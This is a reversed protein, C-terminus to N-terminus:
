EGKLFLLSDPFPENPTAVQDAWARAYGFTFTNVLTPSFIHTEQASLTYLGNGQRQIMVPNDQPSDRHGRDATFSTSLSDQGSLNYDFRALGFDENVPRSTNSFNFASGTPLGNQLLEPGNAAPWYRFFPLIGPVLNPASVYAGRDPCATATNTPNALYCPILGQRAQASPVISTSDDNLRERFGEYTGFIFVKDRVIPGGLSGGFQNRKFPPAGETSSFFNRADLKNNRLYEFVAGHWQNTGSTTVVTVQGGSRKGYEAGYTHGLVN